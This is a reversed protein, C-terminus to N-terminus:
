VGCPASPVDKAATPPRNHRHATANTGFRLIAFLVPKAGRAPHVAAPM